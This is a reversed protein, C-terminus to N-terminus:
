WDSGLSIGDFPVTAFKWSNTAAVGVTRCSGDALCAQLGATHFTSPATTLCTTASRLPTNASQLNNFEGTYYTALGAAVTNNITSTLGGNSSSSLTYSWSYSWVNPVNNCNAMREAFIVTNSTGDLFTGPYSCNYTCLVNAAYSSWGNAGNANQLDSPCVYTKFPISKNTLNKYNDGELQPLMEVFPQDNVLYGPCKGTFASAYNNYAIGLQHLNNSCSMRAAAERVKQVAPLLLGILIAIIAIVVLLEILTFGARKRAVLGKM